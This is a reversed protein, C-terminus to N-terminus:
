IQSSYLWLQARTGAPGERSPHGLEKIEEEREANGRAKEFSKKRTGLNANERELNQLANWNRTSLFFFQM